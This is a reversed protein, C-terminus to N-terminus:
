KQSRRYLTLRPYRDINDITAEFQSKEAEFSFTSSPLPGGSPEIPAQFDLYTVTIGRRQLQDSVELKFSALQQESGGGHLFREASTALDKEVVAKNKDFASDAIIIGAVAKNPSRSGDKNNNSKERLVYIHATQGAANKYLQPVEKLEKFYKEIFNWQNVITRPQQPARSAAVGTDAARPTDGPPASPLSRKELQEITVSLRAIQGQLDRERASATTQVAERQRKEQNLADISTQLKTTSDKNVNLQQEVQGNLSDRAKEAVTARAELESGKLRLQNNETTLDDLKLQLSKADRVAAEREQRAEKVLRDRAAAETTTRVQWWAFASILAVCIAAGILVRKVLVDRQRKAARNAKLPQISSVLFESVSEYTPEGRHHDRRVLHVKAVLENLVDKADADPIRESRATELLETESIVKRTGQVTIMSSLLAEAVHQRKGFLSLQDNFYDKILGDAGRGALVEMPNDARWVQLAAIQVQSLSIRRGDEAPRLQKELTDIAAWPIERRWFGPPIRESEFPRRLISSLAKATPPTLRLFHDPLEPCLYFLLDFKALYDERFVFLFRLHRSKRDQILMALTEVIRRQTEVAKERASEDETLTLLEEFQDFILLTPTGVVRVRNSFEDIDLTTGQADADRTLFSPIYDGKAASRSIREVVIERGRHPQTRLREVAMSSELVRPVLGANILSSKGAGSEGYLLTARYMTILRTLREAEQEREFFIRSDRYRYPELGRYPAELEVVEATDVGTM